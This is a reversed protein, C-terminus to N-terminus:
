PWPLWLRAQQVLLGWAKPHKRAKGLVAEVEAWTSFTTREKAALLDLVPQQHAKSLTTLFWYVCLDFQTLKGPTQRTALPVAEHESAGAPPGGAVTGAESDWAGESPQVSGSTGPYSRDGAQGPLSPLGEASGADEQAPPQSAAAAHTGGAAAGGGALTPDAGDREMEPRSATGGVTDQDPKSACNGSSSAEEWHRSHRSAQDPESRERKM